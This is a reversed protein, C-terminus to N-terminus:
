RLYGVTGSGLALGFAPWYICGIRVSFGYRDLDYERSDTTMTNTM